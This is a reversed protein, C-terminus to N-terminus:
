QHDPTRCSVEVVEVEEVCTEKASDDQVHTLVFNHANEVAQVTHVGAAIKASRWGGRRKMIRLRGVVQKSFRTFMGM